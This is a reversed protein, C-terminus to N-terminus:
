QNSAVSYLQWFFLALFNFPSLLKTYNYTCVSKLTMDCNILVINPMKPAHGGQGGLDV